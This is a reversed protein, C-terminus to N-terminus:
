YLEWIELGKHKLKRQKCDLKDIYKKKFIVVVLLCLGTSTNQAVM